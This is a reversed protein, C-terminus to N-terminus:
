EIEDIIFGYQEKKDYVYYKYDYSYINFKSLLDLAEMYDIKDFLKINTKVNQSSAEKGSTKVKASDAMEGGRAYVYKNTTLNTGSGRADLTIHGGFSRILIGSNSASGSCGGSLININGGAVYNNAHVKGYL